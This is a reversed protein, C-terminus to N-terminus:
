HIGLHVYAFLPLSPNKEENKSKYGFTVGEIQVVPRGLKGLSNIKKTYIYVCIYIYTYMCIYIYIYIYIFTYIYIHIYLIYLHILM